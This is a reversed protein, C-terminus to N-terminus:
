GVTHRGALVSLKRGVDDLLELETAWQEPDDEYTVQLLCMADVLVFYEDNTFVPDSM